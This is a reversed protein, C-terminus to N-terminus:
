RLGREVLRQDDLRRRARALRGLEDVADDRDEGVPSRVTPLDDRHREGLLRGALQLQAARALEVRARALRRRHWSAPRPEVLASVRRSSACTLM